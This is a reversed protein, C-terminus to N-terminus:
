QAIRFISFVSYQRHYFILNLFLAATVFLETALASIATGYAAFASVFTINVGINFIAGSVTIKAYSNKLNYALMTQCPPINLAALLPIFSVIKLLYAAHALHQGSFLYVLEESWFFVILGLPVFTIIVLRTVAKLFSLLSAFSQEALLCVKPFITQYLLVAPARVALLIKEVIGYYGTSVPDAILGLILLNSNGSVFGAFVSLFIPRNERLQRRIASITPWYFRLKYRVIIVAIAGLGVVMQSTGLYFNVWQYDTSKQIFLLVLAAFILKSLINMIAVGRMKEMGQLWWIPLVTQGAVISFSSLFLFAHIHWEPIILTLLYLGIFSLVLLMLKAVYLTSFVDSLKEPENRSLSIERVASISFGYDVVHVFYTVVAQAFVVLGFEAIGTIRLLYPYIVLPVIFNAGQSVALWSFNKFLYKNVVM